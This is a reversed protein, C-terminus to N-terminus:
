RVDEHAPHDCLQKQPYAKSKEEEVPSPSARRKQLLGSKHRNKWATLPSHM